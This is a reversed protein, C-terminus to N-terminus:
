GFNLAYLPPFPLVDMPAGRRDNDLLSGSGFYGRVGVLVTTSRYPQNVDPRLRDWRGRVFAALPLNPLRYEATGALTFAATHDSNDLVAWQADLQFRLDSTAFLRVTGRVFHGTFYLWGASTTSKFWAAQGYLTLANIFALAEGGTTTMRGQMGYLSLDTSGGFAGVAFHTPNRWFVHAFVGSDSASNDHAWDIWTGRGEVELNWRQGVALNFYGGAATTKLDNRTNGTSEARLNTVGTGLEGYGSLAVAAPTPVAAVVPAARKPLDAATAATAVVALAAVLMLRMRNLFSEAFSRFGVM